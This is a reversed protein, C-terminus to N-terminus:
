PSAPAGWFKRESSLRRLGPPLPVGALARLAVRLAMQGCAFARCDDCASLHLKLKRREHPSLAGDLERLVALEADRCSLSARAHRRGLVPEM